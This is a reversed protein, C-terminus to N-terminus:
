TARCLNHWTLEFRSNPSSPYFRPVSDYDTMHGEECLNDINGYRTPMPLTHHINSKKNALTNLECELHKEKMKLNEVADKIESITKQLKPNLYKGKFSELQLLFIQIQNLCMEYKDRLEKFVPVNLPTTITQLNDLQSTNLKFPTTEYKNAVKITDPDLKIKEM